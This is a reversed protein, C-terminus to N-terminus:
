RTVFDESAVRIREWLEERGAGTKASFPLVTVEPYDSGLQKMARALENGSMRDCKTAVVM